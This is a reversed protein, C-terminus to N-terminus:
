IVTVMVPGFPVVIKSPVDGAPVLLTSPNGTVGNGSPLMTVTVRCVASPLGGVPTVRDTM